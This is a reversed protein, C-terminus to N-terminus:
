RQRLGSKTERSRTERDNRRVQSTETEPEPEAELEEALREVLREEKMRQRWDPRVGRWWRWILRVSEAFSPVHRPTTVTVFSYWPSISYRDPPRM